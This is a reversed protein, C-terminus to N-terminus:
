RMNDKVLGWKICDRILTRDRNKLRDLIDWLNGYPSQAESVLDRSPFWDSKHHCYYCIGHEESAVVQKNFYCNSCKM